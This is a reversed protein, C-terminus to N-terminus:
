ANTLPPTSFDAKGRGGRVLERGVRFYLQFFHCIKLARMFRNEWWTEGRM